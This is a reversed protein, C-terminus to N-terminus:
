LSKYHITIYWDVFSDFWSSDQASILLVCADTKLLRQSWPWDKRTNRPSQYWWTNRTATVMIHVPFVTTAPASVSVFFAHWEFYSCDSALRLADRLKCVKWYNPNSVSFRAVYYIYVHQHDRCIEAVWMVNSIMKDDQTLRNRSKLTRWNQTISRTPGIQRLVAWLPSHAVSNKAPRARQGLRGEQVRGFRAFGVQHPLQSTGFSQISIIISGTHQSCTHAFTGIVEQFVDWSHLTCSTSALSITACACSSGEHFRLKKPLCLRVTSHFKNERHKWSFRRTCKSAMAPLSVSGQRLVEQTAWLTSACHALVQSCRSASPAYVASWSTLIHRWNDDYDLNGLEVLLFEPRQSLQALISIRLAHGRLAWAFTDCVCVFVVSKM